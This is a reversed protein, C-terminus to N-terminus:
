WFFRCRDALFPQFGEVALQDLLYVRQGGAFTPPVHELHRRLHV